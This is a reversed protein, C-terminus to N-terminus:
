EHGLAAVSHGLRGCLPLFEVLVKGFIAAAVLFYLSVAAWLAWMWSFFGGMLEWAASAFMLRQPAELLARNLVAIVILIAVFLGSCVVLPTWSGAFLLVYLLLVQTTTLTLFLAGIPALTFKPLPKM